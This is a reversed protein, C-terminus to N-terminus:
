MYTTNMTTHIAHCFIRLSFDLAASNVSFKRCHMLTILVLLGLQSLLSSFSIMCIKAKIAIEGHLYCFRLKYLCLIRISKSYSSDGGFQFLIVNEWLLCGVVGLGWHWPGLGLVSLYYWVKGFSSVDEWEWDGTELDLEKVLRLSPSASPYLHRNLTRSRFHQLLEISDCPPCTLRTYIPCCSSSYRSSDEEFMKRYQAQPLFNVNTCWNLTRRVIGKSSPKSLFVVEQTHQKGRRQGHLLPLGPM